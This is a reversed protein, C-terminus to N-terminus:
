QCGGRGNPLRLYNIEWVEERSGEYTNAYFERSDSGLYENKETYGKVTLPMRRNSGSFPTSVLPVTASEGYPLNRVELRGVREINLLPACNNVVQVVVGVQWMVVRRQPSAVPGMSACGSAAVAVLGLVFLKKM